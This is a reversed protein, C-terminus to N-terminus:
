SGSNRSQRAISSIIGFSMLIIILSSGGVSVFPLPMGKTPFLGSAVGMNILAQMGIVLSIGTAILRGFCTNANQAIKLGRFCLFFFLSACVITGILGLEEGLVSFVFDTHPDPLSSIKVKSHGLGRGWIGGAGMALLSQVLQYGKGKPDAWPDLYAFLRLVRYRFQFLGMILLPIAGAALVLLHKLKAGGIVLMAAVVLSLLVPTGLDPELLILSIPIAFQIILPLVGKKFDTLRSQRRDMFDAVIFIIGLKALESPQFNLPGLKIWRQAGGVERGIFLVLVLSVVSVWYIIRSSRQWVQIPINSSVLFGILGLISYFMQKKFFFYQDGYRNEALLASASYVMVWGFVMLGIVAILLPFDPSYAPSFIKPSLLSRLPWKKKPEIYQFRSM